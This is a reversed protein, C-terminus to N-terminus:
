IVPAETHIAKDTTEATQPEPKIGIADFLQRFLVRLELTMVTFDADFAALPDDGSQDEAQELLEDSFRLRRLALDEAFVFSVADNWLLAIKNVQMGSQMHAAIEDCAMDLRKCKVIGGEESPDRLECEDLFSFHRPAKQKKVWRSFLEAPSTNIAIPAVILSGIAQRLFSLLEECTKASASNVVLLGDEPAIYAQIWQSRSFAQPLLTLYIEEKLAMKEKRGVKRQEAEQIAEVKEALKENVVANPLLKQEKRAAIMTFGNAAHVLMDSNKGLPSVFGYSVPQSRDCPKFRHKDLKEHLAEPSLTFPALFRYIRANRFWM